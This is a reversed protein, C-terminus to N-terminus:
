AGADHKKFVLSEDSDVWEAIVRFLQIPDRNIEEGIQELTMSLFTGADTAWPLPIGAAYARPVASAGPREGAEKLRQIAQESRNKLWDNIM